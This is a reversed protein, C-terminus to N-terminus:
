FRLRVGAGVTSVTDYFNQKPYRDGSFHNNTYAVYTDFRRNFRYDAIMTWTNIRGQSNTSVTPGEIADFATVYYGASTTLGNLAPVSQAFDYNAGAFYVNNNQKFGPQLASTAFGGFVHQDFLRDYSLRASSSPKLQYWEWGGTLKLAPTPNWRLALLTAETNFM